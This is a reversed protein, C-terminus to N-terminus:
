QDNGSSVYDTLFKADAIELDRAGALSELHHTLEHKLVREIESTLAAEDQVYPFARAFSGYYIIIGRGMAHHWRYEGLVYLPRGPTSHNETKAREVVGIGLNLQRFIAEPLKEAQMNVIQSFRDIDILTIGAKRNQLIRGYRGL